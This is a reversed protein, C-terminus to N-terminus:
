AVGTFKQLASACLLALDVLGDEGSGALPETVEERVKHSWAVLDVAHLHEQEEVKKQLAASLGRDADAARLFASLVETMPLGQLDVLSPENVHCLWGNEVKEPWILGHALVGGLVEAERERNLLVTVAIPSFSAAQGAAGLAQRGRKERQAAAQEPEFLYLEPEPYYAAAAERNSLLSALPIVHRVRLLTCRVPDTSTFCTTAKINAQVGAPLLLYALPKVDGPTAGAQVMTALFSSNRALLEQHHTNNLAESIGAQFLGRSLPVAAELLADLAEAAREAPLAAAYPNAAIEERVTHFRPDRAAGMLDYPLVLLRLAATRDQVSWLWYTRQRLRAATKQGDGFYRQFISHEDDATWALQEPALDNLRNSPFESRAANWRARWQRILPGGSASAESASVTTSAPAVDDLDLNLLRSSRGIAPSTGSTPTPGTASGQVMGVADVWMQLQKKVGQLSPGFNPNAEELRRVFALAWRLRVPADENMKTELYGTLAKLRDTEAIQSLSAPTFRVTEWFDQLDRSESPVTVNGPEVPNGYEDLREWGWLGDAPHFLARHVLRLEMLRRTLRIPAVLTACGLISGYENQEATSKRVLVSQVNKEDEYFQKALTLELLAMMANSIARLVGDEAPLGSIDFPTRADVAEGKGDVCYVDDFLKGACDADLESQMSNPVYTFHTQTGQRLRRIERLAAAARSALQGGSGLGTWRANQMVLCLRIGDIVGSGARRRILHAVDVILGSGDNSFADAIVWVRMATRNALADGMPGWLQSDGKGDALDAFLAMRGFGRSRRSGEHPKAWALHPKRYDLKSPSRSLSVETLGPIASPAKGEMPVSIQLLRVSPPWKDGFRDTLDNAIQGLVTRGTAGLGVILMPQDVLQADPTRGAEPEWREAHALWAAVGAPEPKPLAAGAPKGPTQPSVPSTPPAVPLKSNKFRNFFGAFFALSTLLFGLPFLMIAWLPPLVLARPGPSLSTESQSRGCATLILSAGADAVRLFGFRRPFLKYSFESMGNVQDKTLAAVRWLLGDSIVSTGEPLSGSVIEFDFQNVPEFYKVNTLVNASIAQAAEEFLGLLEDATPTVRITQANSAIKRLLSEDFDDGQLGIVFIQVGADKLLQAANLAATPDSGGDTFLLVAAGADPRRRLSRLEDRAAQLAIAIDTGDSAQAQALMENLLAPQTDLGSQQGISGNFLVLAVRHASSATVVDVFRTAGAVAQTLPEGGMSGSQDVLLVADLLMPGGQCDAFSELNLATTVSISQRGFYVTAPIERGLQEGVVSRPLLLALGAVILGLLVVIALLM